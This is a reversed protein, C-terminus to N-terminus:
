ATTAEITVSELYRNAGSPKVVQTTTTPKVIPNEAIKGNALWNVLPTDYCWFMKCYNYPTIFSYQLISTM